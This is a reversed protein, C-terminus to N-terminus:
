YHFHRFETILTIKRRRKCASDRRRGGGSVEIAKDQKAKLHVVCKGRTDFRAPSKEANYVREIKSHGTVVFLKRLQQHPGIILGIRLEIIKNLQKMVCSYQM